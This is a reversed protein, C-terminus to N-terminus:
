YNNMQQEIYDVVERVTAFPVSTSFNIHFKSEVALATLLMALSDLGLDDIIRTDMEILSLDITPKVGKFVNGLEKFIEEQTM